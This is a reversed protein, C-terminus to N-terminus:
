QQADHHEQKLVVHLKLLQDLQGECSLMKSSATMTAQTQQHHQMPSLVKNEVEQQVKTLSDETKMKLYTIKLGGLFNKM